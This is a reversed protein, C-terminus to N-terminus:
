EQIPPRTASVTDFEKADLWWGILCVTATLAGAIVWGEFLYSFYNPSHSNLPPYPYFLYGISFVFGYSVISLVVHIGTMRLWIGEPNVQSGAGGMGTRVAHRRKFQIPYNLLLASVVAILFFLFLGSFYFQIMTLAAVHELRNGYADEDWVVENVGEVAKIQDAINSATISQDNQADITIYLIPILYKQWLSEWQAKQESAGPWDPITNELTTDSVGDIAKITSVLDAYQASDWGPELKAAFILPSQINEIEGRKCDFHLQVLSRLAVSFAVIVILALYLPISLKKM